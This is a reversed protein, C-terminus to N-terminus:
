VISNIVEETLLEGDMVMDILRSAKNVSSYNPKMVSLEMGPASYCEAMAGTGTASFSVVNWRAMDSLQMKMLSSILEQPINMDFMGDVSAMIDSYNSIITTGSTAKEIVQTIVQMQHRGRDSDGGPVRKRERAFDLAQQGNLTNEGVKIPTRGIAMFEHESYVTVGGLADIMKKFGSFNIRVFYEVDTGYLYGLTRMSCKTGYMGCHTLKDRREEETGKAASNVVYYDRPTNILLVQKTLPNVVALINVDSRSNKIIEKDHSDSGSVYVVFPRLQSFDIGDGSLQMQEAETPATVIEEMEQTEEETDVDGLLQTEYVRVQELVRTQQSFDEFEEVEALIDLIGGNLIMADIRHELLANVMTLLNNYGATAPQAGTREHLTDLVQKTCSEDYAKLYGYTFDDAVELSQVPNDALVYIERTSFELYDVSTAELTKMVDVAVTTIAACGCIMIVALVSAVIKRIKGSKKGRIFLLLGVALSLVALVGVLAMLYNQPLMNLRIMAAVAIGEAAVLVAFLVGLIVNLIITKRMLLIERNKM